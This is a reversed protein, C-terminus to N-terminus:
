GGSAQTAARHQNTPCSSRWEAATEGAAAWGAHWLYQLNATAALRAVKQSWWDCPKWLSPLAVINFIQLYFLFFM